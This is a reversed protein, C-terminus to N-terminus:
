SVDINKVPPSHKKLVKSAAYISLYMYNTIVTLQSCLLKSIGDYKLLRSKMLTQADILKSFIPPLYCVIFYKLQFFTRGTQKDM